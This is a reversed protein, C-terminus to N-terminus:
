IKDNEYQIYEDALCFDVDIISYNVAYYEHEDLVVAHEWETGILEQAMVGIFRTNSDWVYTFEYINIGSPSVGILKINDKLRRDSTNMVGTVNLNQVTLNSLASKVAQAIATADGGGGGGGGGVISGPTPSSVVNQATNGIAGLKEGLTQTLDAGPIEPDGAKYISAAIDRMAQIKSEILSFDTNAVTVVADTWIKYANIGDPTMVMFNHSFTGMDKAFQTFAKTFREFPTVMNSLRQMQNTFHWLNQLAPINMDRKMTRGLISMSVDFSLILQDMPINKDKAKQFIDTARYYLLSATVNEQLGPNIYTHFNWLADKLVGVSKSILEAGSIYRKVPWIFPSNGAFELGYVEPYKARVKMIVATAESYLETTEILLEFTPNITNDLHWMMHTLGEYNAHALHGAESLAGPFFTLIDYLNVKADAVMDTFNIVKGPVLKPNGKKDKVVEQQVFQGSGMKIIADALVGIPEAVEGMAEIGSKVDGFVIGFFSGGGAYARGFDGLPGALGDLIKGIGAAALEFHGENLTIVQDPVVKAKPTGPNIVKQTIVQMQAMKIVGEALGGLSESLLGLGELGKEVYGGSFWSSGEEMAKGFDTLPTAIWSLITGVNSGANAFDVWSLKRVYDPVIKTGGKGDDIVKNVVVELNAMKVIGEALGGLSESLTGLGELGIRMYDPSVWDSWFDWWSGSGGTGGELQKGFNTLPETLSVILAGVNKGAQTMMGETVQRIKGPVVKADPTGRGVITQEIFEMNAMKAMGEALSGLSGSLTGIGELGIRMYDKSVLDAFFDLLGGGGGTGGELAIGFDTLPSTMGALLAGVSLAAQEMMQPTVKMVKGPVLKADPTGKNVIEQTIFEMNAMKAMGEALGTLSGSLTGLGELGIQMYNPSIADAFFSFFGGGGTGGELQIGFNTLPATLTSLLTGINTAAAKFDSEQLKTVKDPVIMAEKTGKNIVKNQTVELNAMGQIGTALTTLSETLIGFYEVGTAIYGDSFWGSGEDLAKGFDMLPSTINSLIAGINTASATFHGENLKIVKGPVIMADKTGKNIVENEIVELSAMQQVGKALTVMSSSLKGFMDLGMEIYGDSFWSSGEDVAKGFEMLPSTIASLIANINKAAASFDSKDLKRVDGMVLKADKTGPNIVVNTMVELNAMKAVGEALVVMSDSLKPMMELGSEIYGATFWGSGEDVAKGFEMLPDTLSTLILKINKSAEKFDSKDLKRVEGMVLKAKDTGPNIVVNTMVELNAMKAVGEALTAISDAMIPMMELGKQMIGKTFWSSGVSAAMGFEMLPGTLTTIMLKINNAADKFDSKKLKRTEGLVLQAKDTGPNAVVMSTVELNAIKAVAEALTTIAYSATAMAISGYMILYASIPNGMIAFGELIAYALSTIMDGMLQGTKKDYKVQNFVAVAGTLAIIGASAFVLSTGGLIVFLAILPFGLSAVSLGLVSISDALAHINDMNIGPLSGIVAVVGAFVMLPIAATELAISGIIVLAALLPIGFIAFAGALLIISGALAAAGAIVRPADLFSYIALVASFIMLPFSAKGLTFSGLHIAAAIVPIGALAFAGGLLVISIALAGAGLIIQPAFFGAVLAAAGILMTPNVMKQVAQAGFDIWVAVQGALAFAGSLLAIAVSIVVGGLLVKMPFLGAILLAVTLSLIPKTMSNIATAALTIEPFLAATAGMVLLLVGMALIFTLAGIAFTKAFLGILVFTLGLRFAVGAIISIAEAATLVAPFLKAVAGFILLMAGVTLAFVLAGIAFQKAFFGILIFTLTLRFATGAIAAIGATAIALQPVAMAVLGFILLMAAVVIAFVLAGKAFPVMLLSIITMGLAFMIASGGIGVLEAVAAVNTVASAALLSFLSLMAFVVVSFVLAGLAAMPALFLWAAMALGFLAAGGAVGMLEVVAAMNTTANMLVGSLIRLTMAVTAGFGAAGAMSLPTLVSMAAMDKMFTGANGLIANMLDATAQMKETDMEKTAEDLATVIDNIVIAVNSGLSKDISEAESLAKILEALAKASSAIDGADIKEGKKEEKGKDDDKGDKGGKGGTNKEIKELIANIPAGPGLLKNLQQGIYQADANAM